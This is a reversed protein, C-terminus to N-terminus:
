SIDFPRLEPAKAIPAQETASSTGGAPAFGAGPSQEVGWPKVGGTVPPSSKAGWAVRSNRLSKTRKPFWCYSQEPNIPFVQM